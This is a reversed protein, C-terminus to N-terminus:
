CALGRPERGRSMAECPRPGAAPQASPPGTPRWSRHAGSGLASLDLSCRCTAPCVSSRETTDGLPPPPPAPRWPAPWPCRKSLSHEWPARAVNKQSSHQVGRLGPICFSFRHVSLCEHCAAPADGQAWTGPLLASSNARPRAVLAAQGLGGGDGAAACFCVDIRGESWGPRGGPAPCICIQRQAKSVYNCSFFCLSLPPKCWPRRVGRVCSPRHLPVDLLPLRPGASLAM